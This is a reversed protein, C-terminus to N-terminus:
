KPVNIWLSSFVMPAARLISIRSWLAVPAAQPPSCAAWSVTRYLEVSRLDWRTSILFNAGEGAQAVMRKM